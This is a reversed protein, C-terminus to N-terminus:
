RARDQRRPRSGTRPVDRARAADVVDGLRLQVARPTSGDAATLHGRHMWSRITEPAVQVLRAAETVTIIADYHKTPIREAPNSRALLGHSTPVHGTVKRKGVILAVAACVEDTDFVNSSRERRTPNLYGRAVWQRVTAQRVRFLDAVDRTTLEREYRLDTVEDGYDDGGGPRRM